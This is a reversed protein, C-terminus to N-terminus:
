SNISTIILIRYNSLNLTTIAEAESHSIIEDNNADVGEAILANRFTAHPIEVPDKVEACKTLLLITPILIALLQIVTKM